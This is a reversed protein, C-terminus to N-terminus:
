THTDVILYNNEIISVMRHSGLLSFLRENEDANLILSKQNIPKRKALQRSTM